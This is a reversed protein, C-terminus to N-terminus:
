SLVQKPSGPRRAALHALVAVAACLVAALILWLYIPTGAPPSMGVPEPLGFRNLSFDSAPLSSRRYSGFETVGMLIMPRGPAGHFRDIRAPFAEGDVDVYHFKLQYAASNENTGTFEDLLMDKMRFRYTTNGVSQGIIEKVKLDRFPGSVVDDLVTVNQSAIHDRLSMVNRVMPFVAAVFPVGAESASFSGGTFRKLIFEGAKATSPVIRYIGEPRLLYWNLHNGPDNMEKVLMCDGNAYFLTEGQGVVKGSEDFVKGNITLEINRSFRPECIAVAKRYDVLFREKLPQGHAMAAVAVTVFLAILRVM